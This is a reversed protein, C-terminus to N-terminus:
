QCHGCLKLVRCKWRYTLLKRDVLPLLVLVLAKPYLNTPMSPLAECFWGLDLARPLALVWQYLQM